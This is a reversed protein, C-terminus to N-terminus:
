SETHPELELIPMQHITSRQVRRKLRRILLVACITHVAATVIWTVPYSMYLISLQPDWAFVTYIWIVRLVCAGLTSVIMPLWAKGM